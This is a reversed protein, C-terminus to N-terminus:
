AICYAAAYLNHLHMKVVICSFTVRVCTAVEQQNILAQNSNSHSREVHDGFYAVSIASASEAIAPLQQTQEAEVFQREV